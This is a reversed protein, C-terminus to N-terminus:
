MSNNAFSPDGMAVYLLMNTNPESSYLCDPAASYFVNVKMVLGPQRLTTTWALAVLLQGASMSQKRECCQNGSASVEPTAEAAALPVNLPQGELRSMGALNVDQLWPPTLM